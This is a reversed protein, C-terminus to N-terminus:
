KVAFILSVCDWKQALTGEIMISEDNEVGYFHPFIWNTRNLILRRWYPAGLLPRGFRLRWLGHNKWQRENSSNQRLPTLRNAMDKLCKVPWERWKLAEKKRSDGMRFSIMTLFRHQFQYWSRMSTPEPTLLGRKVQM